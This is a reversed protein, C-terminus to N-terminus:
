SRKHRGPYYALKADPLIEFEGSINMEDMDGVAHLSARSAVRGSFHDSRDENKVMIFRDGEVRLDFPMGEETVRITGNLTLPNDQDDYVRFDSFSLQKGDFDIFDESLKVVTKSQPLQLLSEDIAVYGEITATDRYAFHMDAYIIGTLALDQPWQIVKKVPELDAHEVLLDLVTNGPSQNVFLEVISPEKDSRALLRLSGHAETLDKNIVISQDTTGHWKLDPQTLPLSDSFGIAYGEELTRFHVPLRIEQQSEKVM